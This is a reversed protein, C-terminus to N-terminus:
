RQQETVDDDARRHRRALGGLVGAVEVVLEGQEEDMADEVDEAVVVGLGLLRGPHAGPLALQEFGVVPV